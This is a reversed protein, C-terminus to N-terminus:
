TAQYNVLPLVTWSPLYISFFFLSSVHLTSVVPIYIPHGAFNNLALCPYATVRIECGSEKMSDPCCRCIGLKKTCILGM